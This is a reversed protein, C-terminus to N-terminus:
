RLNSWTAKIPLICEMHTSIAKLPKGLSCFHREGGSITYANITNVVDDIVTVLCSRWVWHSFQLRGAWVQLQTNMIMWKTTILKHCQKWRLEMCWKKEFTIDSNLEVGNNGGNPIFLLWCKRWLNNLTGLLELREVEHKQDEVYIIHKKLFEMKMGVVYYELQM